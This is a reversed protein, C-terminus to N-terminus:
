AARNKMARRRRPNMRGGKAKRLRGREGAEKTPGKGEFSHYRNSDPSSNEAWDQRRRMIRLIGDQPREQREIEAVNGEVADEPYNTAYLTEEAKPRYIRGGEARNFANYLAYASALQALPSPGTSSAPGTTTSQTTTGYPIGRLMSNLFTLQTKPWDRQQLFDQYALDYNKQLQGQQQSGIGELAAADRLNMGQLLNGQNSLATGADIRNRQGMSTLNGVVQGINARNAQEANTLTGRTQGIDAVNRQQGLRLQGLTGTLAGQRSADRNFIDASSAYGRELAQDQQALTSEQVDRLARGESARMRSSGYQGSRISRERVAPLLNERLNREGLEGIRDVVRDTYPNMYEDVNQTWRQGAQRALPSVDRWADMRGARDLMPFAAGTGSMDFADDMYPQAAGMPNMRGASDVMNMGRGVVPQTSGVADRTFQFADRQDQSFPAIRPANYLQYQEGAVANAKMLLGQTYDSLYQPIGTVQTGYSTTSPPPQGNWLFDLTSV